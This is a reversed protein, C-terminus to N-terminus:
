IKPDGHFGYSDMHSSRHPLSRFESLEDIFGDLDSFGDFFSAMKEVGMLKEAVDEKVVKEHENLATKKKSTFDSSSSGKIQDKAAVKAKSNHDTPSVIAAQGTLSQVLARFNAADTKIIEPSLVHITRIEPKFKAIVHSDKHMALKNASSDPSPNFPKPKMIM